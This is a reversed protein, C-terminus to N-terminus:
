FRCYSLLSTKRGETSSMYVASELSYNDTPKNGCAVRKVYMYDPSGHNFDVYENYGNKLCLGKKLQTRDTCNWACDFHHYFIWEVVFIHMKKGLQM